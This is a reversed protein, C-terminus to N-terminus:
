GARALLADLAPAFRDLLSQMAADRNAARATDALDALLPVAQQPGDAPATPTADDVARIVDAVTVADPRGLPAFVRGAPERTEVVLGATALTDWLDAVAEGPLGLLAALRAVDPPLRRKAAARAALLFFLLALAHRMSQSLAGARSDRMFAGYCQATHSIQAGFLVIVWSIYLWLLLLPIQAFSGYIANYNKAGFQFTIYAWQVLQWLSGAVLAGVLARGPKVRTNPLFQYILYFAAWIIVVPLVALLAQGIEGIFSIELLRQTLSMARVSAMASVAAFLLPPCVLILLLYNTFRSRLSRKVRIDWAANVAGEITSVLSVATSLLLLTGVVGLTKVNTNQIYGLIQDAVEVRNATVRLLLERVQPTAYLGLGKTLSFAVALFPVISLVTTYSLASALSLSRNTLFARVVHFGPGLWSPLPSGEPVRGLAFARGIAAPLGPRASPPKPASDTM